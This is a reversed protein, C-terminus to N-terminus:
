LAIMRTQLTNNQSAMNNVVAYLKNLADQEPSFTIEEFEDSIRNIWSSIIISTVMGAISTGFAMKLGELLDTISASINSTEFDYLGITIGLFTGLVGLTTLASPMYEILKQKKKFTKNKRSNYIYFACSIFVVIIIIISSWTILNNM